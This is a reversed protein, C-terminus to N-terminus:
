FAYFLACLTRFRSMPASFPAHLTRFRAMLTCFLTCLMVSIHRSHREHCTDSFHGINTRYTGTLAQYTGTLTRYTNTLTWQM